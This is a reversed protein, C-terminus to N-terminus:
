GLLSRWHAVRAQLLDPPYRSANGNGWVPGPWAADAAHRGVLHVHLQRVINGLAGINLKQIGDLDRLLRGAQNIEALLLRQQAGDLDIWECAGAVRPVLVLWPFRQDDMMRVQSLPGEAIFVSDAGLRPDLEFNSM